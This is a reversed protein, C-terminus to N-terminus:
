SYVNCGIRALHLQLGIGAFTGIEDTTLLQVVDCHVASISQVVHLQNGAHRAAEVAGNRASTAGIREIDVSRARILMFKRNIAGRIDIRSVITACMTVM